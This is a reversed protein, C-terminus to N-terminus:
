EEAHGYSAYQYQVGLQIDGEDCYFGENDMECEITVENLPSQDVNDVGLTLEHLQELRGIKELVQQQISRSQEMTYQTPDNYVSTLPRGNTKQRLDPRPIGGIRCKFSRLGLCVWDEMSELIDNAMLSFPELEGYTTFGITDFRKLNPASCLFKQMLPSSFAPCDPLRLNELTASHNLVAAVTLPGTSINPCKFGLTKWGQSRVSSIYKAVTADDSREYCTDLNLEELVPSREILTLLVRTDVMQGELTLARLHSFVVSADVNDDADATGQREDGTNRNGKDNDDDGLISSDWFLPLHSAYDVKLVRIRHLNKLFPSSESVTPPLTAIKKHGNESTSQGDDSTKIESPKNVGTSLYLSQIRGFTTYTINVTNWLYDIFCGHWAKNVLVCVTLDHQSLRPAILNLIEHPFDVLTATSRVPQRDDM